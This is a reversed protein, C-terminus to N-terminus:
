RKAGLCGGFARVLKVVMREKKEPREKERGLDLHDLSRRGGAREERRKAPKRRRREATECKKGSERKERGIRNDSPRSQPL